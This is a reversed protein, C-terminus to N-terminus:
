ILPEALLCAQSCNRQRMASISSQCSTSAWDSPSLRSRDTRPVKQHLSRFIGDAIVASPQSHEGTQYNVGCASQYLESSEMSWEHAEVQLVDIPGCILSLPQRFACRSVNRWNFCCLTPHEWNTLNWSIKPVRSCQKWGRYINYFAVQAM